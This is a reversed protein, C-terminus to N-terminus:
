RNQYGVETSGKLFKVPNGLVIYQLLVNLECLSQGLIEFTKIYKDHMLDLMGEALGKFKYGYSIRWENQIRM